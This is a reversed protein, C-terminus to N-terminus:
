DRKHGDDKYLGGRDIDRRTATGAQTSEHLKRAAEAAAWADRQTSGQSQATTKLTHIIWIAIVVLGSVCAIAIM